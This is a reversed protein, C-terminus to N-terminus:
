SLIIDSEGFSRYDCMRANKERPFGSITQDCRKWCRTTRIGSPLCHSVLTKGLRKECMWCSLDVERPYTSSYRFELMCCCDYLDGQSSGPLFGVRRRPLALRSIYAGWMVSSITSPLRSQTSCFPEPINSSPNKHSKGESSQYFPDGHAGTREM